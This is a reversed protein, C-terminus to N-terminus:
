AGWRKWFFSINRYAHLCYQITTVACGIVIVLYIPWTPATFIGVVGFFESDEVARTFVPWTAWGIIAFVFAGALEFLSQLVAGVRPHSAKLNIIFMDSQIFRRARLASGLQLFVIVVITAAVIEAIGPIPSNFATRAIVDTCVLAMVACILLSGIGNLADLLRGFLSPRRSSTNNSRDTM